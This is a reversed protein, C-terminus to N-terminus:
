TDLFQHGHPGTLSMKQGIKLQDILFTSARGATTAATGSTPCTSQGFLCGAPTVLLHHIEDIEHSSQSLKFIYESESFTIM